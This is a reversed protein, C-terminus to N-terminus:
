SKQKRAIFGHFLSIGNAKKMLKSGIGPTDNIELFGEKFIYNTKFVENVIEQHPMYEQLGFNNVAM